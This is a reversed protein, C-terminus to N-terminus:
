SGFTKKYLWEPIFIIKQTYGTYNNEKEGVIEVLKVPLWYQDKKKSKTKHLFLISKETTAIITGKVEIQKDM